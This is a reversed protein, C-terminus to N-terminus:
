RESEGKYVVTFKCMCATGQHGRPNQFKHKIEAKAVEIDKYGFAHYNAAVFENVVIDFRM